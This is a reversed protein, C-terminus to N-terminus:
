IGGLNKAHFAFCGIRLGLHTQHQHDLGKGINLEAQSLGEHHVERENEEGKALVTDM